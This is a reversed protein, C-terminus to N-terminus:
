PCGMECNAENTSDVSPVRSPATAISPIALGVPYKTSSSCSIVPTVGVPWPVISPFGTDSYRTEASGVCSSFSGLALESSSVVIRPAM